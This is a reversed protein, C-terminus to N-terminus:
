YYNLYTLKFELINKIVGGYSEGTIYTNRGKYEPFKVFFNELANANDQATLVDNM